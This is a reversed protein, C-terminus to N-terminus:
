NDINMIKNIAFLEYIRSGINREKLQDIEEKSLGASDPENFIEAIFEVAKSLQKETYTAGPRSCFGVINKRQDVSKVYPFFPIAQIMSHLYRTTMSTDRMLFDLVKLREEFGVTSIGNTLTLVGKVIREVTAAEIPLAAKDEHTAFYSLLKNTGIRQQNSDLGDFISKYQNGLVEIQQWEEQHKEYLCHLLDQGLFDQNPLFASLIKQRKQRTELPVQLLALTRYPRLNFSRALSERSQAKEDALATQIMLNRSEPAIKALLSIARGLDEVEFGERELMQLIGVLGSIDQTDVSCAKHKKLIEELKLTPPKGVQYFASMAASFYTEGHEKALKLLSSYITPTLRATNGANWPMFPRLREFLTRLAIAQDEMPLREGLEALERLVTESRSNLHETEEKIVQKAEDSLNRCDLYPARPIIQFIAQPNIRGNEIVFPRDSDYGGKSWSAFVSDPCLISISLFAALNLHKM